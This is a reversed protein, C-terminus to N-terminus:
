GSPALEVEFRSDGKLQSRPRGRGCHTLDAFTRALAGAGGLLLLDGFEFQIVGTTMIRVFHIMVM